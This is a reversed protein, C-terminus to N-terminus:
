VIGIDTRDALEADDVDLLGRMPDRREGGIWRQSFSKAGRRAAGHELAIIPGRHQRLQLREPTLLERQKLLRSSRTWPRRDRPAYVIWRECERLKGRVANLALRPEHTTWM